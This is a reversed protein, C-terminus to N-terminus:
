QEGRWHGFWGSMDAGSAPNREGRERNCASVDVTRSLLTCLQRAEYAGPATAHTTGSTTNPPLCGARLGSALLFRPPGRGCPVVRWFSASRPRALRGSRCRKARAMTAATRGPTTPAHASRRTASLPLAEVARRHPRPLRRSRDASAHVDDRVPQDLPRHAADDHLGSGDLVPPSLTAATPAAATLVDVQFGPRPMGMTAIAAVHVDGAKLRESRTQTGDRAGKRAIRLRVSPYNTSGDSM